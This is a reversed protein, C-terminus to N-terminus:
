QSTAYARNTHSGLKLMKKENKMFEHVWYRDTMVRRDDKLWIVCQKLETALCSLRFMVESAQAVDTLKWICSLQFTTWYESLKSELWTLFCAQQFKKTEPNITLIFETTKDM